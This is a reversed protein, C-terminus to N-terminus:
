NEEEKRSSKKGVINRGSILWIHLLGLLCMKPCIQCQSSFMKLKRNQFLDM